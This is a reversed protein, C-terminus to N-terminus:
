YKYSTVEASMRDNVQELRQRETAMDLKLTHYPTVVEGMTLKVPEKEFMMTECDAEKFGPPQYDQPTVACCLSVSLPVFLSVSFLFSLMDLPRCIGFRYVCVCKRM